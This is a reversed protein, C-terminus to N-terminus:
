PREGDGYEPAMEVINVKEAKAPAKFSFLADPVEPDLSWELFTARFQPSGEELPYTLVVRRLMGPAKTDVWFQLEIGPTEFALHECSVGSIEASGLYLPSELRDVITAVDSQVLEVLPVPVALKDLLTDMAEDINDGLPLSAYVSEDPSYLTGTSGDFTFHVEHGSRQSSNIRLRDPRRVTVSSRGGFELKEGTEQVVDFATDFRFRLRTASQVRLLSKRLIERARLQSETEAEEQASTPASLLLALVGGLVCGSWSRGM